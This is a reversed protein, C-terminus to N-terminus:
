AFYGEALFKRSVFVLDLQTLARNHFHLDVIQFPALGLDLLAATVEMIGPAGINYEVLSVECMVLSAHSLSHQGGKIVQLESGQVDIKVFDPLELHNASALEDLTSTSVTVPSVDHYHHTNELYVSDGSGGTAFFEVESVESSLVSIHFELGTSELAKRHISNAEFLTFRANQLYKMRHARTSWTGDHAGIDWVEKMPVGARHFTRLAGLLNPELRIGFHRIIRSSLGLLGAM